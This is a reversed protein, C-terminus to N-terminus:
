MSMPVFSNKREATRRVILLTDRLEDFAETSLYRGDITRPTKSNDHTHFEFYKIIDYPSDSKGVTWATIDDWTFSEREPRLRMHIGHEDVRLFGLFDVMASRALFVGAVFLAAGILVMQVRLNPTTPSEYFLFAGAIILFLAEIAHVIGVRWRKPAFFYVRQKPTPVHNPFLPKNM